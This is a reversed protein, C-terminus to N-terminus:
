RTAPSPAPLLRGVHGGPGLRHGRRAQGVRAPGRVAGAGEHGAGAGQAGPRRRLPPQRPHRDGGRGRRPPLAGRVAGPLRPRAREPVPHHAQLHAGVRHLQGRHQGEPLGPHRHPQPVQEPLAAPLLRQPRQLDARPQDQPGPAPAADADPRGDGARGRALLSIPPHTRARSRSSACGAPASAPCSPSTASRRCRSATTAASTSSRRARAGPSAAHRRGRRHVRALVHPAAPEADHAPARRRCRGPASTDAATPCSTDTM